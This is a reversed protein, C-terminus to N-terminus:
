KEYNKLDQATLRRSIDNENEINNNITIKQAKNALPSSKGGPPPTPDSSNMNIM